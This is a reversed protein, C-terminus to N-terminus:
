KQRKKKPDTSVVVQASDFESVISTAIREGAGAAFGALIMVGHLAQGHALPALVIGYRVALGAITGSLAGAWIRSVGELYHLRRGASCDLTIKGSRWIVSLLAGVGGACASLCIWLLTAGEYQIIPGRALWLVLGVIGFPIAMLGSASLYWRRSTEESREKFFAAAANLMKRATEYDDDLAFVIAEGILRRFSLVVEHSLCASPYEELLKAQGLIDNQAREDEREAADYTPTTEWDLKDKLDIVVVFHEAARILEKRKVHAWQAEYDGREHTCGSSQLTSDNGATNANALEVHTVTPGSESGDSPVSAAESM